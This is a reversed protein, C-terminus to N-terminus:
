EEKMQSAKEEKKTWFSDLSMLPMIMKRESKTTAKSKSVRKTMFEKFNESSPKMPCVKTEKRKSKLGLSTSSGTMKQRREPSKMWSTFRRM